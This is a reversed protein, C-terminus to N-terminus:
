PAHDMCVLRITIIVLSPDVLITFKMFELAPTRTCTLLDYHVHMIEKFIKKEIELCLMSLNLIYNHHGLFPRGFNYIEHGKPCPNKALAHGYFGYLSFANNRKFDEKISKSM